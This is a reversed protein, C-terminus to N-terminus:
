PWALCGLSVATCHCWFWYSSRPQVTPHSNPLSPPLCEEFKMLMARLGPVIFQGRGLRIQRRQIRTRPPLSPSPVPPFPMIHASFRLFRFYLHTKHMCCCCCYCCCCPQDESFTNRFPAARPPSKTGARARCVFLRDAQRRRLRRRSVPFLWGVKHQGKRDM